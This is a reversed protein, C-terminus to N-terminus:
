KVSIIDNHVGAIIKTTSTSDGRGEGLLALSTTESTSYGRRTGPIIKMTSMLGGWRGAAIISSQVNLEGGIRWCCLKVNHINLEGRWDGPPPSATTSTPEGRRMAQLLLAVTSTSDRTGMVRRHYHLQPRQTEGEWRGDAILKTTSM